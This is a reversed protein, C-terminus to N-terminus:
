AALASHNRGAGLGRYILRSGYRVTEALGLATVTLAIGLNQGVAPIAILFPATWMLAGVAVYANRSSWRGIERELAKDVPPKGPILAVVIHVATLVLALVVWFQISRTLLGPQDIGTSIVDYAYWSHGILLGAFSVADTRNSM